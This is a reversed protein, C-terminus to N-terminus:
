KPKCGEGVTFGRGGSNRFENESQMAYSHLGAFGLFLMLFMKKNLFM